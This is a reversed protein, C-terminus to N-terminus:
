KSKNQIYISTLSERVEEDELDNFLEDAQSKLAKYQPSFKHFIKEEKIKEQETPAKTFNQAMDVQTQFHQTNYIFNIRSIKGSLSSFKKIVKKKIEEELFGLDQSFASHNTLVTLCNNHNKLPITYKGLRQGVIEPWAEILAFFDFTQESFAAKKSYRPDYSNNRVSGTSFQDFISKLSTFKKNKKM